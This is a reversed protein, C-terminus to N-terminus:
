LLIDLLEVGLRVSNSFPELNIDLGFRDNLDNLTWTSQLTDQLTLLTTRSELKPGSTLSLHTRRRVCTMRRM